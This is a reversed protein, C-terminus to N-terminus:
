GKVKEWEWKKQGEVVKRQKKYQQYKMMMNHRPNAEWMAKDHQKKMVKNCQKMTSGGQTEKHVVRQRM